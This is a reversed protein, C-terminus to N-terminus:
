GSTSSKPINDRSAPGRAKVPDWAVHDRLVIWCWILIKRALAVIAEKYAKGRKRLRDYIEKSLEDAREAAAAAQYLAQRLAPPGRKSIPTVQGKFKGSRKDTPDLGAFAVVAEVDAFRNPDGLEGAVVAATVPGMGPVTQLLSPRKEMERLIRDNAQRIQEQLLRIQHVFFKVEDILPEVLGPPPRCTQLRKVIDQAKPEVLESCSYFPALVEVLEELTISPFKTQQFVALLVELTSPKDMLGLVGALGPVLLDLDRKLQRQTTSCKEVLRTRVRCRERLRKDDENWTAFPHLGGNKRAFDAIKVADVRDTKTKRITRGKEEKLLLPNFSWVSAEKEILFCLLDLHYVGSAEMAYAIPRQLRIAIAQTDSWITDHGEPTNAYSRSASVVNGHPDLVCVELTEQAVDIGVFLMERSVAPPPESTRVPHEREPSNPPKM